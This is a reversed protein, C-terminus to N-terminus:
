KYLNSHTDIDVFLANNKDLLEYVARYDGTINISRYGQYKGTLAHNNLIPHFPNTMFLIIREDIRAQLSRHKKHKKEFDKHYRVRM